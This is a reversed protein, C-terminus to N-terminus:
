HGGGHSEAELEETLHSPLWSISKAELQEKAYSNIANLDQSEKVRLTINHENEVHDNFNINNKECEDKQIECIFCINAKDYDTEFQKKRLNRFTDLIIGFLIHKLIVDWFFFFSLDYFWRNFIFELANSMFSISQLVRGIGAKWRM